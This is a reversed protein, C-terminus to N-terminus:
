LFAKALRDKMKESNFYSRSWRKMSEVKELWDRSADGILSSDRLQEQSYISREPFIKLEESKESDEQPCEFGYQANEDYEVYM